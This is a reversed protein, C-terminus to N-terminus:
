TGLVSGFERIRKPTKSTSGRAPSSRLLPEGTLLVNTSSYPSSYRPSYNDRNSPGYHGKCCATVEKKM